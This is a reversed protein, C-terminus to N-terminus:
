RKLDKRRHADENPPAKRTESKPDKGSIPNQRIPIGDIPNEIYSSGKQNPIMKQLKLTVYEMSIHLVVNGRFKCTKDQIIHLIDLSKWLDM